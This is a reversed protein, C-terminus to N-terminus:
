DRGEGIGKRHGSDKAYDDHLTRIKIGSSDAIFKAEQDYFEYVKTIIEIIGSNVIDAMCDKCPMRNTYIICDKTCHGLRAANAIASRESHGAICLQLGQGSQFGLLRRPCTELEDPIVHIGRMMMAYILADDELHRKNCHTVGRPPGNYGTSVVSKDNVIVSGVKISLCNSKSAVVDCLNMFYDDWKM